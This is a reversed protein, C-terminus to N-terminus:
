NKTTPVEWVNGGVARLRGAKAERHLGTVLSTLPVDHGDHALEERIVKAHLATGRRRLVETALRGMGVRPPSLLEEVTETRTQSREM